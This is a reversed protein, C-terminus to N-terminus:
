KIEINITQYLGIILPVFFIIIYALWFSLNSSITIATIIEKLLFLLFGILISIFLVKFFSENRKFKGSFGMVTFGIIVLFIPKLIESLYYLSIETSYLNFKKLSEIHKKYKYFPVHKYNSISDILNQNDFNLSLQILKEKKYSDNDINFIIVDNLYFKKDDFSGNKALYFFNDEKSISIIKIDDANMNEFDMISVNIFYKENMDKINKIWLENNKINISYMNSFDKTTISDFNKEFISSLPNLFMFIFLGIMFIALAIPKFIDLISYGINRLSILENNSILGRYLFATSIVIVFPIIEIVISPLKLLSLYLISFFNSNKAEIIKIIELLNILHVFIGVFFINILIYKIKMLFLYIFIKNNM